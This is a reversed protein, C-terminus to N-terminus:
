FSHKMGMSIASMDQGTLGASLAAGNVGTKAVVPQFAAYQKNDVNM